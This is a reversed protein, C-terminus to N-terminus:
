AFYPLLALPAVILLFIPPYFFASYGVKEGFAAKQAAWHAAVDYPAGAQGSLALRAATWFSLFDTGLPKGEADLGGRALAIWALAAVLTVAFLVRVFRQARAADLWDANLIKPWLASAFVAM